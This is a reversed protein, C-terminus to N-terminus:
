KAFRKVIFQQFRLASPSLPRTMNWAVGIERKCTPSSVHIQKIGLEEFALIRPLLSVGLDAAM